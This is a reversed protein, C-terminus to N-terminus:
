KELIITYEDGDIAPGKKPVMHLHKVNEYVIKAKINNLITTRWWEPSEVILHANRGNPLSKKAPYCAILLFASVTFLENIGMLTKELLALEVHELADTSIVVDSARAPWSSFEDVGPDYGSVNIKYKDKIANILGGKGCGFDILSNPKYKELFPEVLKLKKAGASFKKENKHLEALQNQYEKNIFKNEVM